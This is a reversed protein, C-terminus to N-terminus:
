KGKIEIQSVDDGSYKFKLVFKVFKLNKIFIFANNIGM